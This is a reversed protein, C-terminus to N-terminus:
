DLAGGGQFRGQLQRWFSDRHELPIWQQAENSAHQGIWPLHLANSTAAVQYWWAAETFGVSRAESVVVQYFRFLARRTQSYQVLDLRQVILTLYDRCVQFDFKVYM